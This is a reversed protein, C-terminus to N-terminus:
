EFSANDRANIMKTVSSMIGDEVKSNEKKNEKSTSPKSKSTTNSAKEDVGDVSHEKDDKVQQIKIKKEIRKRFNKGVHWSCLM